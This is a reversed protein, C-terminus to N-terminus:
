VAALVLLTGIVEPALPGPADAGAFRLAASEALISM